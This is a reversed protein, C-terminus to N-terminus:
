WCARGADVYLLFVCAFEHLGIVPRQSVINRGQLWKQTRSLVEFCFCFDRLGEKLCWEPHAEAHWYLGFQELSAVRPTWLFVKYRPLSCLAATCCPFDFSREKKFMCISLICCKINIAYFRHLARQCVHRTNKHFSKHTLELRLDNACSEGMHEGPLGTKVSMRLVTQSIIFM